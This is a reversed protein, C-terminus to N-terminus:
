NDSRSENPPPYTASFLCKDMWERNISDEAGPVDPDFQWLETTGDLFGDVRRGPTTNWHADSYGPDSSPCRETTSAYGISCTASLELNEGRVLRVLRYDTTHGSAWTTVSSCVRGNHQRHLAGWCDYGWYGYPPPLLACSTAYGAFAGGSDKSIIKRQEDMRRIAVGNQLFARRANTMQRLVDSDPTKDDEAAGYRQPGREREELWRAQSRILAKHFDPDITEHLLKVYATSMEEDARELEPTACILTAVPTSANTCDIARVPSLPFVTFFCLAALLSSKM